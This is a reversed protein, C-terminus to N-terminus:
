ELVELAEQNADKTIITPIKGRVFELLNFHRVYSVPRYGISKHCNEIKVRRWKELPGIFKQSTRYQRENCEVADVEFYLKGAIDVPQPFIVEQQPLEIDTEQEGECASLFIMMLLPLIVKSM